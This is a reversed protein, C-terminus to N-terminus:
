YVIRTRVLEKEKKTPPAEPDWTQKGIKIDMVCPQVMGATANSLVIYDVEAQLVVALLSLNTKSANVSVNLTSIICSMFETLFM